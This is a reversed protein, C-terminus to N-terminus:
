SAAPVVGEDPPHMARVMQSLFERTVEGAREPPAEGIARLLASGVIVGAGQAAVAAAQDPTSIGFGVMIPLEARERVRQIQQVLDAPLEQRAGTVGRLSVLYVFGRSRRAIESVRADPTTPAVLYVLDLGAAAAAKEMPEGEELTLDPVILGRCGAAALEACARELGLAYLPNCYTMAIAALGSGDVAQRTLRLAEPWHIGAQLAQSSTRQIIPGDAVPDSFPIGVEFASCGSAAAGRVSAVFAEPDPWGATFYPLLM